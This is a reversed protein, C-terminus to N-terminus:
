NLSYPMTVLEGGEMEINQIKFNQDTPSTQRAILLMSQILIRDCEIGDQIFEISNGAGEISKLLDDMADEFSRDEKKM